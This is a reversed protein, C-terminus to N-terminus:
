RHSSHKFSGPSSITGTFPNPAPVSQTVADFQGGAIGAGTAGEFRGTGGVIDFTEVNDFLGPTDTPVLQGAFTSFVADGNAAVWTSTGAYTLATFDLIFVGPGHANGLHTAQVIVDADFRVHTPDLQTTSLVIPNFTGKFPVQDGARVPMSLCLTALAGLLLLFRRRKKTLNGQTALKDSQAPNQKRGCVTSASTTKQM